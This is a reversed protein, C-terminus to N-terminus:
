LKNADLESAVRLRWGELDDDKLDDITNVDIGLEFELFKMCQEVTWNSPDIMNNVKIKKCRAVQTDDGYQTARWSNGKHDEFYVRIAKVRGFHLFSRGYRAPFCLTGPWNTIRWIGNDETLYLIYSNETELCRRDYDGCCDFCYKKNDCQAYGTTHGSHHTIDKDCCACHFTTTAMAKGSGDLKNRAPNSADYSHFKGDAELKKLM